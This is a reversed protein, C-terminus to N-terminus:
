NFIIEGDTCVVKLSSNFNFDPEADVFADQQWDWYYYTIKNWEAKTGSYNIININNFNANAHIKKINTSLSLTTLSYNGLGCSGISEIYDPISTTTSCVQVLHNTESNIIANDVVHYYPNYQSIKLVELSQSLYVDENFFFDSSSYNFTGIDDIYLEELNETTYYLWSSTLDYGGNDGSGVGWCKPLTLSTVRKLGSINPAYSNTIPLKVSEITTNETSFTFGSIFHQEYFDNAVCM